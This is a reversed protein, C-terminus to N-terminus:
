RVDLRAIFHLSREFLWSAPRPYLRLVKKWAIITLDLADFATVWRQGPWYNYPLAVGHRANGVWDLFRLTPHALWGDLSHDKIVLATRSVRVAERLLIMPDETHHLVDVLMVADFSGDGYPIVEGDFEKVPIHTQGRVCVDIGHLDIDHRKRMIQHALLGDGCGVDLVRASPPLLEAIHDSLVSVRRTHVYGGHIRDIVSM